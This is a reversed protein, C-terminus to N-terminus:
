RAGIMRRYIIDVSRLGNTAAASGTFKLKIYKRNTYAIPVFGATLTTYSAANGDRDYEITNFTGSALVWYFRKTQSFNGLGIYGTYYTFAKRSGICMQYQKDYNSYYVEGDRGVILGMLASATFAAPLGWYDWRSYQRVGPRAPTYVLINGTTAATSVLILLSQLKSSYALIPYFSTHAIGKWGTLLVTIDSSLTGAVSPCTRIPDGIPVFSRGDSAYINEKDVVYMVSETVCVGKPSWCGIGQIIDEVYFQEPDIKYTNNNSFVWIRGAFAAIANPVEPLKLFDNIWDFTDLRGKKSKFIMHSADTLEPHICKAVFLTSNYEVGIGWKVFSSDMTESFGTIDDFLSGEDDLSDIWSFSATNGSVIWDGSIASKQYAMRYETDPLAAGIGGSARWLCVHTIRDCFLVNTSM